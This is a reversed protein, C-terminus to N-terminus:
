EYILYNVSRPEIRYNKIFDPKQTLQPILMTLKSGNVQPITVSIEFDSPSIKKQNEFSVQYYLVATKPFLEVKQNSVKTNIYIPLTIKMETFKSTFFKPKKLSKKLGKRIFHSSGTGKMNTVLVEQLKAILHVVHVARLFLLFSFLSPKPM